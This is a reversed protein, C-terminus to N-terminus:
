GLISIDSETVNIVTKNQLDVAGALVKDDMSINFTIYFKPPKASLDNTGVGIATIEYPKGNIIRQVESDALFIRTVRAKDASAFKAMEELDLNEPVIYAVNSVPENVAGYSIAAATSLGITIISFALAFALKNQMLAKTIKVILLM